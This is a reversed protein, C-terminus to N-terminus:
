VNKFFSFVSFWKLFWVFWKGECYHDRSITWVQSERGSLFYPMMSVAKRQNSFFGHGNKMLNNIM